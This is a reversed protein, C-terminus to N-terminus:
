AEIVAYGCFSLYLIAQYQQLQGVGLTTVPLNPTIVQPISVTIGENPQLAIPRTLPSTAGPTCTPTVMAVPADGRWWYASTGGNRTRCKALTTAALSGPPSQFIGDTVPFLADLETQDFYVSFGKLNTPMAYTAKQRVMQRPTFALDPPYVQTQTGGFYNDFGGPVTFTTPAGEYIITFTGGQMASGFRQQAAANTLQGMLRQQQTYVTGPFIAPNKPAEAYFNIDATVSAASTNLVTPARNSLNFEMYADPPLKLTHSFDWRSANFASRTPEQPNTNTLPPNVSPCFGPASNSPLYFRPELPENSPAAQLSPAINFLSYRLGGSLGVQVPLQPLMFQTQGPYGGPTVVMAIAHTLVIPWRSGNYFADKQFPTVLVPSPQPIAASLTSFGWLVRPEYLYGPKTEILESPAFM